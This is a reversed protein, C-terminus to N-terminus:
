KRWASLARDAEPEPQSLELHAAVVPDQCLRSTAKRVRLAVANVSCGLIQAAEAHSTGEWRVLRLVEQDAPPLRRIARVLWLDGADDSSTAAPHAQAEGRLRDFLRLRRRSRRRDNLVAHQATKYLWLRGEVGPPVSDTLRWATAFVEAVVDPVEGVSDSLRRHVYAYIAAYHEVYFAEFRRAHEPSRRSRASMVRSGIAL